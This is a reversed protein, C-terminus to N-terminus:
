LRPVYQQRYQRPSIGVIKRFQRTFYNSDQFGVRFAIQSVTLERRRLLEAARRVRLQILYTIPSVGLAKRFTRQFSRKPMRAIVALEDLEIGQDFHRELYTIAEAIRLLSQSDPNEAKSYCRSLYGVIQMFLSTALFGFGAARATLEEDLRDVMAVVTALNRSPLRLRSRFQHRRRWAPELTFLAHYGALSPLDVLPLDLQEPDFLVNILRLRDMDRYDHPRAGSIVFVDGAALPWSEKGTLHLGRGGTIIVVESFEHTHLGFPPQPDRREVAVPFGDPHFWDERTLTRVM